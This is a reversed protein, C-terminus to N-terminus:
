LPILAHEGLFKRSESLTESAKAQYHNQPKNITYEFTYVNSLHPPEAGDRRQFHPSGRGRGWGGEGGGYKKVLM